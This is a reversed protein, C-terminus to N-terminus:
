IGPQWGPAYEREWLKMAEADDVVRGTAPDCKLVRGTRWAMNGLHALLTSKHGEGIPANVATKERVADLFNRVHVADLREGPGVVGQDASPAEDNVTEILKQKLDFVRYDNRDIILTGQEGHFMV